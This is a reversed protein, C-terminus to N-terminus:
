SSSRHIVSKKILSKKTKEKEKLSGEIYSNLINVLKIVGFFSQVPERQKVRKLLIKSNEKTNDTVSM